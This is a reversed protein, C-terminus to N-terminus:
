GGSSTECTIGSSITGGMSPKSPKERLLLWTGMEGKGKIQIMGRDEFDFSEKLQDYVTRTVQIAGPVGTSEMRSALNVTDGWLDYIFKSTGIVGAVVPGSNLGIRMQLNLGKEDGYQQTAQLMRLAMRAMREAHDSCRSPLGCVAMYCDGITKIKEIGLESAAQDFLSFLGNLMEVVDDASIKSSLVTFGVLDAFLVTVDAFNDAIVNEGGKLRSAIEEPLINLLLAENERNKQEIVRTKDRISTTMSNFIKCLKGLEDDSKWDVHATLDGAEVKTAAAGLANIPRLLHRTMLLAALVTMIFVITGWWIFFHQMEIVPKFAEDRNMRSEFVWHLGEINLPMFSVLDPTAAFASKEITSGEEGALAGTVSPVRMELELITGNHAQIRAIKEEPAGDARLSALFAQPSELFQRLNTRIRYDPGIIVSRGSRGLGDKEWGRQGSVVDEIHETSIQLALVGIRKEGQFIPSAAWQTPEGLHAEDPEFDSFFVDDPNNTELCRKVVKALNSNRYPGKLLSTGLDRDKDVDYVVLGSEDILYVDDYGFTAVLKRFPSHYRAHVRSYKSGDGADELDRRHGDGFPNKVIYTYQLHFAAPTVPVYDDFRPRAIRLAQMQPFFRSRYDDVVAEREEPKVAQENLSKYADRFESMANVFMWDDSLTLVHRHLTRYYSELQYAKARRISTLQNIANQKLSHLHKIYSIAGTVAFTTIGFQLLVVLLKYRLSWYTFGKV